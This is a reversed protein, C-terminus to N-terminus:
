QLLASLSTQWPMTLLVNTLNKLKKLLDTLYSHLAVDSLIVAWFKKAPVRCWYIYGINVM